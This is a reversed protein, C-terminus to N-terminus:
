TSSTVERCYTGQLVSIGINEQLVDVRAIRVQQALSFEDTYIFRGRDRQRQHFLQEAGVVDEHRGGDVPIYGM